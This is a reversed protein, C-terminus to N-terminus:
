FNAKKTIILNFLKDRWLGEHTVMTINVFFPCFKILDKLYPSPYLSLNIKGSEM